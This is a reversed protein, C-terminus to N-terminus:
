EIEYTLYVTASVTVQAAEIPTLTGQAMASLAFARAVPEPQSEQVTSATIIGKLKVNLSAALAQAQAQADRSAAALAEARARTDDKLSFGLDNVRNAGAAIALDILDGLLNMAPTEVSISNQANYGVITASNQIGQHQQYDPTLSYGGTWVKGKDGLKAKLADTVKQALAANRASADAATKAHTEIAFSLNAIDSKASIEGSGSVVITRTQDAAALGPVVAVIFVAILLAAARYRNRM